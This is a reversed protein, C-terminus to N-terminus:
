MHVRLTPCCRAHAHDVAVAGPAHQERAVGCVHV